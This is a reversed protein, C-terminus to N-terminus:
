LLPRSLRPSWRSNPPRGGEVLRWVDRTETRVGAQESDPVETFRKLALLKAVCWGSAATGPRREIGGVQLHVFLRWHLDGHRSRGWRAREIKGQAQGSPDSVGHSDTGTDSDDHADTTARARRQQQRLHRVPYRYPQGCPQCVRDHPFFMGPRQGPSEALHSGGAM